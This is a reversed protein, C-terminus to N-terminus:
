GVPDSEQQVAETAADSRRVPHGLLGSRDWRTALDVFAVLLGVGLVLGGVLDLPYHLGLYYRSVVEAAAAVLTVGLLWRRAGARDLTALFVVVGVWLVARAAGGSPYNGPNGLNEPGTPVQSDLARAAVASLAHQFLAAVLPLLALRWSSRQVGLLVGAAIVAGYSVPFDGVQTVTRMARTVATARLEDSREFGATDFDAIADIRSLAGVGVVIAFTVAVIAGAILLPRADQRPAVM